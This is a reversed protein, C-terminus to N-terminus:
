GYMTSARSLSEHAGDAHLAPLGLLPRVIYCLQRFWCHATSDYYYNQLPYVSTLIIVTIVRSGHLTVM